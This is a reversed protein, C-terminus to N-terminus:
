YFNYTFDLLPIPYSSPQLIGRENTTIALGIDCAFHESMLRVGVANILVFSSRFESSEVYLWNETMLAVNKGVRQLASLSFTPVNTLQDTATRVQFNFPVGVNLTLHSNRDGVTITESVMGMVPFGVGRSFGPLLLANVGTALHLWPLVTGGGRVGLMLNIGDLGAIFAPLATAVDVTLFDTAGVSLWSAALEKQSFYREGQELMMGSPAVFYRSRNPDVFWTDGGHSFYRVSDVREIVKTPFVSRQGTGPLAIAVEESDRSILTGTITQGDKFILTVRQGVTPDLESPVPEDFAKDILGQQASDPQAPAPPVSLPTGAPESALVVLLLGLTMGPQKEYKGGAGLAELAEGPPADDPKGRVRWQLLGGGM